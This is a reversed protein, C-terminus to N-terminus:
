KSNANSHEGGVGRRYSSRLITHDFDYTDLKNLKIIVEKYAEDIIETAQGKIDECYSNLLTKKIGDCLKEPHNVRKKTLAFFDRKDLVGESEEVIKDREELEKSVQTILHTILTCIINKGVKSKRASAILDKGTITGSQFREGQALKLEQDFLILVKKKNSRYKKEIDNFVDDWKDPSVLRLMGPPFYSKLRETRDFDSSDFATTDMKTVIEDRSKKPLTGWHKEVEEGFVDVDPVNIKIGQGFMEELAEKNNEDFLDKAYSLVTPLPDFDFLDDIYYVEEINMLKLLQNLKESAGLEPLTNHSAPM